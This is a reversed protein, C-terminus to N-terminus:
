MFTCFVLYLMVKENTHGTYTLSPTRCVGGVVNQKSLEWLKLTNDTSASVITDSDLFKVYSVAKSHNILVRWPLRTSRLDYCYVKYDASGFAILHASDSPFQVCCVNAETKITGISGEKFGLVLLCLICLSWYKLVRESHVISSFVQNISWLKVSGDDSGSALKTPDAQSFDVSWARKKHEKYQM